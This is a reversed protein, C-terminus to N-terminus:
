RRHTKHGGAPTPRARGRVERRPPPVYRHRRIEDNAAAVRPPYRIFAGYAALVMGPLVVLLIVVFPVHIVAFLPVMIWPVLTTWYVWEHMSTHVPYRRYRRAAIWYVLSAGVCIVVAGVWMLTFLDPFSTPNFPNLLIEM